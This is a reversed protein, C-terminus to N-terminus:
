VASPLDFKVPGWPFEQYEQETGSIRRGSDEGEGHLDVGTIKQELKIEAM